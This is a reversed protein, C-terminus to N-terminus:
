CRSRGFSAPTETTPWRRCGLSRLRWREIASAVTAAAAVGSLGGLAKHIVGPLMRAVMAALPAPHFRYSRVIGSVAAEGGRFTYPNQHRDSNSDPAGVGTSRRAVRATHKPTRPTERSAEIVRARPRQLLARRKSQNSRYRHQLAGRPLRSAGLLHRRGPIPTAPSRWLLAKALPAAAAQQSARASRRM